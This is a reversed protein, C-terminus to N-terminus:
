DGRVVGYVLNKIRDMEEFHARVLGIEVPLLHVPLRNAAAKGHDPGKAREVVVVDLGYIARSILAIFNSPTLGEKKLASALEPLGALLSSDTEHPLRGGTREMLVLGILLQAVDKFRSTDSGIEEIVQNMARLVCQTNADNLYIAGAQTSDSQLKVNSRSLPSVTLEGARLPSINLTTGLILLPAILSAKGPM